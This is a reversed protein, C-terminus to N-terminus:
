KADEEIKHGTNINYRAGVKYFYDERVIEKWNPFRDPNGMVADRMDKAIQIAKSQRNTLVDIIFFENYKEKAYFFANVRLKYGYSFFRTTDYFSAYRTERINLSVRWLRMSDDPREVDLDIAYCNWDGRKSDTYEWADKQNTFAARINENNGEDWAETVIYVKKGMNIDRKM